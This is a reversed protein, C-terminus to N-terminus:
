QQEFFAIARAVHGHTRPTQAQTSDRTPSAPPTVAATRAGGPSSFFLILDAVTGTKQRKAAREVDRGADNLEKAAAERVTNNAPLTPTPSAATKLDDAALVDETKAGRGRANAGSSAAKESHKEEKTTKKTRPAPPPTISFTTGDPLKIVRPGNDAGASLPSWGFSGGTRIALADRNNNNNKNSSSSSSSSSNNNNNNATSSVTM